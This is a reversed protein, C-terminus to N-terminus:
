KKMVKRVTGDSMKVINIGRVPLYVRKGDM